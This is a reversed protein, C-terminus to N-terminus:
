PLDNGNHGVFYSSIEAAHVLIFVGGAAHLPLGSSLISPFLVYGRRDDYFERMCESLEFKRRAMMTGFKWRLYTKLILRNEATTPGSYVTHAHQTPHQAVKTM